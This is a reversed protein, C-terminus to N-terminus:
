RLVKMHRREINLVVERPVVKHGRHGKAAFDLIKEGRIRNYVSARSCCWRGALEPISYFARPKGIEEVNVAVSRPESGTLNQVGREGVGTVIQKEKHEV